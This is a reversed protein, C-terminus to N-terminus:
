LIGSVFLQHEFVFFDDGIRLFLVLNCPIHMYRLMPADILRRRRNRLPIMPHPNLFSDTKYNPIAHLTLVQTFSRNNTRRITHNSRRLSRRGSSM